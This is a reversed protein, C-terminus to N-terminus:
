SLGFNIMKVDTFGCFLKGKALDKSKIGFGTDTVEIRVVITDLTSRKQHSANHQDLSRASLENFEGKELDHDRGRHYVSKGNTHSVDESARSSARERTSEKERDRTPTESMSLTRTRRYSGHGPHSHAYHPSSPYILRTKISLMGGAPTFKCANSALNTIIQRLRM